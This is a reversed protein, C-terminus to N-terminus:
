KKSAYIEAIIDFSAKRNPKTPHELIEIQYGWNTLIQTCLQYQDSGHIAVFLQPSYNKLLQESGLLAKSEGGEVDIKLHTPPKMNHESFSKDVTTSKVQLSGAQSIRGMAHSPGEQFSLMGVTDSLAVDFIEVNTIHNLEIHKKLYILNRPLPEFAYVRGTNTILKSAILTYFGVNAGIDYVVDGPKIKQIFSQQKDYEYSGIWHFPSASEQIWLLEKAYGGLIPIPNSFLPATLRLPYGIYKRLPSTSLKFLATALPKAM